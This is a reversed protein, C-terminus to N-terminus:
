ALAASVTDTVVVSSASTVALAASVTVMMEPSPMSVTDAVVMSELSVELLKFLMVTLTAPLVEAVMKSMVSAGVTLLSLTEPVWFTVMLTPKSSTSPSPLEVVVMASSLKSVIALVEVPVTVNHTLFEPPSASKEAALTDDMRSAASKPMLSSKVMADPALM